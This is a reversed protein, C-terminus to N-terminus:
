KELARFEEESLKHIGDQDLQYFLKGRGGYIATKNQDKFSFSVNQAAFIWSNERMDIHYPAQRKYERRKKTDLNILRFWMNEAPILTISKRPVVKQETPVILELTTKSTTNLEKTTNVEAVILPKLSVTTNEEVLSKNVEVNIIAIAKNKEVSEKPIVVLPEITKPQLLKTSNDLSTVIQKAESHLEKQKTKIVTDDKQLITNKIAQTTSPTSVLIQKNYYEVFFYWAGYAILALLLLTILKPVFTKEEHIPQIVSIGKDVPPNQTFYYKCEESLIDLNMDFEREIIAIAGKAQPYSFSAFDKNFLKEIVSVTLNTKKSITNISRDQTLENLEM